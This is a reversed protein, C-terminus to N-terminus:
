RGGGPRRYRETSNMAVTKDSVAPFDTDFSDLANISEPRLPQASWKVGFFRRSAVFPPIGLRRPPYQSSLHLLM